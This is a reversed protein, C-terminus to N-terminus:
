GAVLGVGAVGGADDEEGAEEDGDEGAVGLGGPLATRSSGTIGGAVGGLLERGPLPVVLGGEGLSDVPPAMWDQHDNCCTGPPPESM